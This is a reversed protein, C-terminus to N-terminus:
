NMFKKDLDNIREELKTIVEPIGIIPDNSVGGDEAVGL